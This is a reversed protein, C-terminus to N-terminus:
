GGTDRGRALADIHRREEDDPPGWDGDSEDQLTDYFPCRDNPCYGDDTLDIECRACMAGAFTEALEARCARCLGDTDLKRRRDCRSCRTM